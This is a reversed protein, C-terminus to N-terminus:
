GTTCSKIEIESSSDAPDDNLEVCSLVPKSHVSMASTIVAGISLATAISKIRPVLDCKTNLASSSRIGSMFLLNVFSKFPRTPM